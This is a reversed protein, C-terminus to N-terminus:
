FNDEMTKFKFDTKLQKEILVHCGKIYKGLKDVNWSKEKYSDGFQIRIKLVGLREIKDLVESSLSYISVYYDVKETTLIGTTSPSGIIPKYSPWDVKGVNTNDSILKIIENNGLKLLVASGAEIRWLSSILLCYDKSYNRSFLTLSFGYTANDLKTEMGKTGIHRINGEKIKDWSIKATTCSNFFIILSLLFIFKKMQM